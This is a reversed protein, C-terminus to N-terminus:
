PKFYRLGRGNRHEPRLWCLVPRRLLKAPPFTAGIETVAYIKQEIFVQLLDSDLAGERAEGQLIQVAKDLPM